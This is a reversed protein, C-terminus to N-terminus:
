GVKPKEVELSHAFLFRGVPDYLTTVEVSGGILKAVSYKIVEELEVVVKADVRSLLGIQALDALLGKGLLSVQDSVLFVNMLTDIFPWSGNFSGSVM